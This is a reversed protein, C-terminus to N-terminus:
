KAEGLSVLPFLTRRVEKEDKVEVTERTADMVQIVMDYSIGPEFLIIVEEHAPHADKIKILEEKLRGFDFAGQKTPILGGGGIGGLEFGKESVKVTFIKIVAPASQAGGREQPLYMDIIATKAFVTTLLVFPIVITFINLLPILNVDGAVLHRHRKKSPRFAV